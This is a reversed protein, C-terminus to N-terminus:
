QPPQEVPRVAVVKRGKTVGSDNVADVTAFYESGTNLGPLTVSENDYVQFNHSLRDPHIGYRVIYFDAGPTKTWSVKALRRNSLREASVQDVQSPSKGLGSGFLRLGSVSFLADGPTHFNTLKVYRATVPQDLQVYEHVADRNNEKRDVMPKWTKGDDSAELLYRFADKRVDYGVSKEDGFNIQVADVRCPKGLDVSLWEGPNGTAAAWWTRVDEDFALEPGHRDDLTSSVTAPKKYSLLMWGASNDELPNQAIGPGYQPYDGLYTNCAIEDPETGNPVFGAPFIGLRREWGHRVGVFMTVVHWYRNQDDQYMCSHGASGIFGSPKYSFPSYPAYRYPGLPKDSIYVGDGYEKMVTGPAAYQLYYTGNHKTMWAGEAWSLRKDAAIEQDSGLLNRLEWGHHLPDLSLLGEPKGVEAFDYTPDLEVGWIPTKPSCGSFMYVKADDDVFLAPDAYSAFEAVQTWSGKAPDETTFVAKSEVNTFVMKGNMVVVSPAYNELPLGTPEVFDWNVMEKSHWYGGAKSAFLWYEGKFRVIVPDAAERMPVKKLSNFRYPLDLPNCFTPPREANASLAVAASAALLGIAIGLIACRASPLIKPFITKM